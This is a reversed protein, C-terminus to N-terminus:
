LMRETPCPLTEAAPEGMQHKALLRHLGYIQLESPGWLNDEPAAEENDGLERSCLAEKGLCQGQRWLATFVLNAFLYKKKKELRLFTTLSARLRRM